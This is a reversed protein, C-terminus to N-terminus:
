KQCSTHRVFYKCHKLWRGLPERCSLRTGIHHLVLGNGWYIGAHNVVPSAVRGLVVDGSQLEEKTIQYFGCNKITVENLLDLGSGIPPPLFWNEQRPLNDLRVGKEQWYWDRVLCWCDRIGCLFQRGEYPAIPSGDGFWEIHSCEHETCKIIGWPIDMAQQQQMDQISPSITGDTHSHILGEAEDEVDALFSITPTQHRNVLPVYVGGLVM